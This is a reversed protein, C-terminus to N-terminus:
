FIKFFSLRAGDEPVPTMEKGRPRCEGEKFYWKQIYFNILNKLIKSPGFSLTKCKGVPMLHSM